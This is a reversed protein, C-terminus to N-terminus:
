IYNIHLKILIYIKQYIEQSTPFLLIPTFDFISPLSEVQLNKNKNVIIKITNFSVLVIAQLQHNTKIGNSIGIPIPTNNDATIIASNIIAIIKM